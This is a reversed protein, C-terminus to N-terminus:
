GKRGGTRGDEVWDGRGGAQDAAKLEVNKM